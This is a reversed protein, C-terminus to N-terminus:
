PEAPLAVRFGLGRNRVWPYGNVRYASRCGGAGYLFSGGRVVRTGGDAPGAPNVQPEDPYAGFWDMCWEWVGGHMDHLGWDNAQKESVPHREGGANGGFWGVRGLDDESDGSCFRTTTGARCAFEWQAETPLQGGIWRAYLWAAWWSVRVVPLDPQAVRLGADFLAYEAETVPTVGLRFPSLAVEHQSEISLRGEEDEPSGMVFSTSAGSPPLLASRPAEPQGQEPWRGCARFFQEPAVGVGSRELAYMRFALQDTDLQESVTDMVAARLDDLPVNELRLSELLRRLDDGDWSNGYEDEPVQALLELAEEAQLGELQPLTRLALSHDSEVLADLLQMRRPDERELLGCLLAVVEGWRGTEDDNAVREVLWASEDGDVELRGEAIALAALYDRLSRHLYRWPTGPGDHLGLIGCNAGIDEVFAQPSGWLMLVYDRLEGDRRVLAWVEEVLEDPTWTEKEQRALALSLSALLKKAAHADKVGKRVIRGHGRRLLLTIAREYLGTRNPPLDPPLGWLEAGEEPERATQVLKAILTLLLPNGALEALRPRQGLLERAAEALEPSLWASLLRAQEGPQLDLLKAECLGPLRTPDYAEPRTAVLLRAGPYTRILTQIRQEITGRMSGAVEDFGDLLLWVRGDEHAALERLADALRACEAQDGCRESAVLTFPDQATGQNAWTALPVLVPVPGDPENGLRHALERCLTSKGAGPAGRLVWRGTLHDDPPLELLERLTLPTGRRAIEKESAPLESAEGREVREIGIQVLVDELPRGPDGFFPVLEAHAQRLWGRYSAILDDGPTPTPPKPRAPPALRELFPALNAHTKGYSLPLIRGALDFRSRAEELESERVLLYHRGPDQGLVKRVWDRLAGFNPDNTGEGCGVFVVTKTTFLTRMANQAAESRLVDDYSRLGLVVSDSAEWHGHLHFIARKTGRVFRAISEPEKWTFPPLDTARALIGDYNTTVIPCQLKAIAAPVSWDTVQEHLKGVTSELWPALEADLKETLMGAASVLEGVAVVGDMAAKWTAPEGLQVCQQFGHELLGTWGAVSVQGETAAISVGAGCVVIVKDEAIKARLENELASASENAPVESM